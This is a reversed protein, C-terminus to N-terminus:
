VTVALASTITLTHDDAYRTANLTEKEVKPSIRCKYVILLFNYTVTTELPKGNRSKMANEFKEKQADCKDDNRESTTESSRKWRAHRTNESRADLSVGRDPQIFSVVNSAETIYFVALFCVIGFLLERCM